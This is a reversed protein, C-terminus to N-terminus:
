LDIQVGYHKCRAKFAALAKSGYDDFHGKVQREDLVAASDAQHLQTEFKALKRNREWRELRNGLRGGLILEVVKQCLRGFGHPACDREAQPMTSANPLFAQTWDNVTRMDWYLDHGALPIMQVVEHAIFLDRRPQALATSDLFYNPCLHVGFMRAVRVLAIACARTLWVRGPTTVILYDIDAKAEVNNMALAGTVAVMRVFPLHAMVTGFRRAARCLPAAYAARAQRLDTLEPRDLLRVFGDAWQVKDALWISDTLAAQVEALSAAEGILYRHLEELTLPYAFVDAYLVARLIAAETTLPALLVANSDAQTLL